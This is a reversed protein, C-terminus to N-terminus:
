SRQEEMDDGDVCVKTNSQHCYANGLMQDFINWFPTVKDRHSQGRTSLSPPQLMSPHALRATQKYRVSEEHASASAAEQLWRSALPSTAAAAATLCDGQPFCAPACAM